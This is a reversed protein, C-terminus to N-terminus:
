SVTHILVPLPSLVKSNNQGNAATSFYFMCNQGRIGTRAELRYHSLTPSGGLTGFSHLAETIVRHTNNQEPAMKILFFHPIYRLCTGLLQWPSHQPARRPAQIIWVTLSPQFGRSTQVSSVHLSCQTRQSPFTVQDVAPQTVSSERVLFLILSIFRRPFTPIIQAPLITPAQDPGPLGSGIEM